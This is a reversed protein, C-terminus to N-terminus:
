CDVKQVKSRMRDNAPFVLHLQQANLVGPYSPCLGTLAMPTVVSTCLPLQIYM